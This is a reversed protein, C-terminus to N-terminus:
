AVTQSDPSFTDVHNMWEYVRNMGSGPGTLGALESPKPPEMQRYRRRGMPPHMAFDDMYNHPPPRRPISHSAYRPDFPPIDYLDDDMTHRRPMSPIMPNPHLPPHGMGMPPATPPSMPPGFSHHSNLNQRQGSFRDALRREMSSGRVGRAKNVGSVYNAGSNQRELTVSPPPLPVAPPTMPPVVASHARRGYDNHLFPPPATGFGPVEGTDDLYDDDEDEEDEDDNYDDEDHQLPMPPRGRNRHGGHRRSEHGYGPPAARALGDIGGLRERSVTPVHIQVHGLDDEENMDYGFSPCDCVKWKSGCMMCFQAGCRCTMHNCGEKLEVMAQCNFCRKWGEEKAVREFQATDENVPCHRSKHWKNYCLGCIETHCKRCTASTRGNSHHRLDAPRIWERCKAKPCYNRDRNLFRAFKENWARKFDDNFLDNVHKLPIVDDTCCRPPMNQADDISVKFRRKLCKDCWRHGCKLKALKKASISENCAVCTRIKPDMEYSQPLSATPFFKGLSQRSTSGLSHSTVRSTSTARSRSFPQKGSYAVDSHYYKKPTRKPPFSAHAESQVDLSRHHTPARSPSRSQHAARRRSVSRKVVIRPRHSIIQDESDDSPSEIEPVIKERSKHRSRSRNPTNPIPESDPTGNMREKMRAKMRYDQTSTSSEDDSDDSSSGASSGPSPASPVSHVHIYSSRTPTPVIDSDSSESGPSTPRSKVRSKVARSPARSTVRSTVRSRSRMRELFQEKENEEDDNDDEEDDDDDYLRRGRTKPTTPRTLLRLPPMSRSDFDESPRSQQSPYKPRRRGPRQIEPQQTRHPLSHRSEPRPREWDNNESASTHRRHRYPKGAVGQSSAM